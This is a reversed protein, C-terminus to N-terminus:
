PEEPPDADPDPDPKPEDPEPDATKDVDPKPEDATPAEPETTAPVPNTPKTSSTKGGSCAAVSLLAILFWKKMM